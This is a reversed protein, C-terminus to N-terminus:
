LSMRRSREYNPVKSVLKCKNEMKYADYRRSRWNINITGKRDLRLDKRKCYQLQQGSWSHHFQSLGGNYHNCFNVVYGLVLLQWISFSQYVRWFWLWRSVNQIYYYLATPIKSHISVRSRSIDEAETKTSWKWRKILGFKRTWNYRVCSWM